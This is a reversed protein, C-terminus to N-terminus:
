FAGQNMIKAELEDACRKLLDTEADLLYTIQELIPGANAGASLVEDPECTYTTAIEHTVNQHEMRVRIIWRTILGDEVIPTQECPLMRYRPPNIFTVPM